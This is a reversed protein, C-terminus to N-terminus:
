KFQLAELRVGPEQAPLSGMAPPAPYYSPHRKDDPPVYAATSPLAPVSSQRQAFDFASTLDGCVARRWASIHPEAVGFRREIFRIISTHDFVESCVWGGKSWPSIALFPVRPGLGYPGPTFSDSNTGTVTYFEQATSVTSGGAAPDAAPLPPVLHDFFGDNEDFM